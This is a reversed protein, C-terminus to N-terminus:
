VATPEAAQAQQRTLWIVLGVIAVLFIGSILQASIGLGGDKPPQTLLDGLSAGLPRTLIYATWFAVVANLHLFRYALFTLAIIGGFLLASLPYGLGLSEGILDGASTGLAFTCLIAAWYFLERRTTQISHVSLTRESAYWLGFVVVLAVGFILSTTQLSVGMNDVLNDSILTGMVSIFVVVTWYLAPVYRRARLQAALAVVLLGAMIYSTVTLGLKLNVSLFDAATEGVTTAMIKIVWFVLTVAPM